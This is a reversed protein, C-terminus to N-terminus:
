LGLLRGVVAIALLVAGALALTRATWRHSSRRRPEHGLPGWDLLGVIAALGLLVIGAWLLLGGVGDVPQLQLGAAHRWM